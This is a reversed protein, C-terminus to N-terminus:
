AYVRAPAIAFLWDLTVDVVIDGSACIMGTGRTAKKAIRVHMIHVVATDESEEPQLAM